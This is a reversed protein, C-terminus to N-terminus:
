KQRKKHNIHCMSATKRLTFLTETYQCNISVGEVFINFMNHRKVPTKKISDEEHGSWVEAFFPNRIRALFFFNYKKGEEISITDCKRFINKESQKKRLWLKVRMISEDIYPCIPWIVQCKMDIKKEKKQEMKRAIFVSRGFFMKKYSHM